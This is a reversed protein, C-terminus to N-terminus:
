LALHFRELVRAFEEFRLPEGLAGLVIKLHQALDAVTRAHLVVGAVKVASGRSLGRECQEIIEGFVEEDKDVLAM